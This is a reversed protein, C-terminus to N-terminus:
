PVFKEELWKATLEKLAVAAHLDDFQDRRSKIMMLFNVKAQESEITPWHNRWANIQTFDREHQLAGMDPALKANKLITSRPPM